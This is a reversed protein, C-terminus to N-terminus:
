FKFGIGASISTGYSLDEVALTLYNKKAYEYNMELGVRLEDSLSKGKLDDYRVSLELKTNHVVKGSGLVFEASAGTESEIGNSHILGLSPKLYLNYPALEVLYNAALRYQTLDEGDLSINEIEGEAGLAGEIGHEVKFFYGNESKQDDLDYLSLGLELTTDVSHEQHRYHNTKHVAAFASTTTLSLLLVSSLLSKKM